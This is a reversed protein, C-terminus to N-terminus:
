LAFGEGMGKWVHEDLVAREVSATFLQDIKLDGPNGRGSNQERLVETPLSASLVPPAAFSGLSEARPLM